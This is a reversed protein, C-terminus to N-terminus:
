KILDSFPRRDFGVGFYFSETARTFVRARVRTNRVQARSGEKRVAAAVVARGIPARGKNKNNSVRVTCSVSYYVRSAIMRHRTFIKIKVREM